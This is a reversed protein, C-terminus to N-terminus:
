VRRLAVIEDPIVDIPPSNFDSFGSFGRSPCSGWPRRLHDAYSRQQPDLRVQEPTMGSCQGMGDNSV